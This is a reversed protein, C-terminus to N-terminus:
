GVPKVSGNGSRDLPVINPRADRYAEQVVDAMEKLMTRRKARRSYHETITESGHGLLHKVKEGEYGAEALITAVTHRAGHFTLGASIKKDELLADRCKGWSTKFGDITWPRGRSNVFLTTVADTKDAKAFLAERWALYQKMLSWLDDCIPLELARRTKSTTLSLLRDAVATRAMKVIDGERIGLYAALATPAALHIPMDLVVIAEAPSWPRNADPLDTPRPVPPVDKAPNVTMHGYQVGFAFLAKLTVTMQNAFKFGKVDRTKDRMGMLVPTTFASLDSDLVPGLASIVREYDAQTRERLGKWHDAKAQYEKILIRLTGAKPSLPKYLADLRAVEAVLAAGKLDPSIAIRPAGKRRYYRRLKGHRDKFEQVGIVRVRM